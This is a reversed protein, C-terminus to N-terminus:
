RAFCDCIHRPSGSDVHGDKWVALMMPEDIGPLILEYAIANCGDKRCTEIAKRYFEETLTIREEGDKVQAGHNILTGIHSLATQNTMTIAEKQTIYHREAHIYMVRFACLTM